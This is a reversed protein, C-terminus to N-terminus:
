PTASEAARELKKLQGPANAKGLGNGPQGDPHAAKWPGYGPHREGVVKPGGAWPPKGTWTKVAKGDITVVDIELSGERIEGAITM